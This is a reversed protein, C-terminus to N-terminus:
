RSAGQHQMHASLVDGRAEAAMEDFREAMEDWEAMRAFWASTARTRPRYRLRAIGVMAVQEIHAPVPVLHLRNSTALERQRETLMAQGAAHAATAVRRESPEGGTFAYPHIIDSEDNDAEVVHEVMEVLGLRVLQDWANWFSTWGSDRKRDGVVETSGTMHPSVFSKPWAYQGEPRFGYVVFPGREGMKHRGFERRISRWHIGGDSSLAQAHYLDILLRLFAVNQTQRVLELPATENAAGDVIANPLWIWDPKAAAEADYLNPYYHNPWQDGAKRIRGKKLLDAAVTRPNRWSKWDRGGKAPVFTEGSVLQDFLMQEDIELKPPPYGECAPVEQAPMLRYRPKPTKHTIQVLRAKVLATIAIQARPRSIGTYKEIANVSWSTTRQDHGTGRALVLYATM